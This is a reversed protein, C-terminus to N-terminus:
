HRASECCRDACERIVARACSPSRAAPRSIRSTASRATRTTAPLQVALDRGRAGAHAGRCAGARRGAVPHCTACLKTETSQVLQREASKPSHVSHCTACSLNRRERGDGEWGAHAGRNHCSLCAQSSSWRRSRRSSAFSRPMAAKPTPRGRGMAARADRRPQRLGRTLPSATCPARTRRTKMARSARTKALWPIVPQSSGRTAQSDVAPPAPPMPTARVTSFATLWLALGCAVWFLPPLRSTM